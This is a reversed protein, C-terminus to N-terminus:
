IHLHLNLTFRSEFVDQSKIAVSRSARGAQPPPPAGTVGVTSESGIKVCIAEVARAKCVCVMRAMGVDVLVGWNEGVVLVVLVGSIESV